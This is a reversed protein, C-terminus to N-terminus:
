AKEMLEYLYPLWDEVKDGKTKKAEHMLKIDEDGGYLVRMSQEIGAINFNLITSRREFPKFIFMSDSSTKSLSKTEEETLHFIEQLDYTVHDHPMVVKLDLNQDVIDWLKKEQINTYRDTDVAGILTINYIRALEYILDINEAFYPHDFMSAMEDLVLIKPSEKDFGLARVAAFVIAAKIDKSESGTLEELCIGTVSSKEIQVFDEGFYHAVQNLREQLNKADNGLEFKDIISSINNYSEAAAIQEALEEIKEMGAPLLHGTYKGSMLAVVLSAFKMDTMAPLKSKEQWNGGLANIFLSPSHDPSIYLITPNYKTTESVLFDMLTTKGSGKNGFFCTHGTQKEGHFNVFYPTSLASPMVTVYKGWKSSKRGHPTSQLSAFAGLNESAAGMDRRLFKFNGPLQSWFINELNIDERVHVIGMSALYKACTKTNKELLEKNDAIVMISLQQKVLGVEREEDAIIDIGKAMKLQHDNTVNLIYDQYKYNKLAESKSTPYFVETAIMEIPVQLFAGFLDQQGSNHYERLSLISAFHRSDLRAVEIQRSGVAYKDVALAESLDSIPVEVSNESFSSLHNFLYLPESYSIGDLHKIKLRSAGFAELDSLINNTIAYLSEANAALIKEHKTIATAKSAASMVDSVKQIKGTMGRYVVSIYLVNVFTEKLSHKEAWSQHLMNSFINNYPLPDDINKKRRITHVWCALEEQNIHKALSKRVISTFENLNHAVNESSMGTIQLSQLLEGNKTLLTVSDYHCALPIYDSAAENYLSKDSKREGQVASM